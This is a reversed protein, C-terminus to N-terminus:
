KNPNQYKNKPIKKHKTTQDNFNVQWGYLTSQGTQKFREEFSLEIENEQIEQNNM